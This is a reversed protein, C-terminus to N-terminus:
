RRKRSSFKNQLAGVLSEMSTSPKIVVNLQNDVEENKDNLIFFKHCNHEPKDILEQLEKTNSIDGVFVSDDVGNTIVKYVKFVKCM